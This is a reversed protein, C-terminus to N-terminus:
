GGPVGSTREGYAVGHHQQQEKPLFSEEGQIATDMDAADGDGASCTELLLHASLHVFLSHPLSFFTEIRAILQREVKLEEFSNYNFGISLARSSKLDCVVAALTEHNTEESSSSSFFLCHGCM